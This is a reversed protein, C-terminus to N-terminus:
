HLVKLLLAMRVFVGYKAQEFYRAHPSSDVEVPIETERPLPHMIIADQKMTDVLERTLTFHGKFKEYEGLDEFYEKPIRGVYLVDAERVAAELSTTESFSVGNKTLSEKIDDGMKLEEPSVFIMKINKFLRLVFALSRATRYHKLDGVFVVTKGDIGGTETYITYLDLLAQTPHQGVGDGANIVPVNSVAAAKAASGTEPHRLVIVDAYGNVIRISDELTEGKSASSFEAANETGIVSGGLKVMASEFSFRTRTSPQYFLTAMVKGKLADKPYRKVLKDVDKFFGELMPRDFQQTEIVHQM